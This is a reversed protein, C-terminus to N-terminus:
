AALIISLKKSTGAKDSYNIKKASKVLDAM